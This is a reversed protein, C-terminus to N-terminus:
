DFLYNPPMKFHRGSNNELFLILSTAQDQTLTLIPGTPNDKTMRSLAGWVIRPEPGTLKGAFYQTETKDPVRLPTETALLVNVVQLEMRQPTQPNSALLVFAGMEKSAEAEEPTRPINGGLARDTLAGLGTEVSLDLRPFYDGVTFGDKNYVFLTPEHLPTEPLGMPAANMSPVSM